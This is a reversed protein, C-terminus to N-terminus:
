FAGFNHLISANQLLSSDSYSLTATKGVPLAFTGELGILGLPAISIQSASFLFAASLSGFDSFGASKGPLYLLV